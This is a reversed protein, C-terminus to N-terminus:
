NNEGEGFLDGIQDEAEEFDQPSITESEKVLKVMEYVSTSSNYSKIYYDPLQMSINAVKVVEETEINAIDNNMDTISAYEKMVSGAYTGTIGLITEGLKIKDATLGIVDAIQSQPAIIELSTGDEVIKRVGYLDNIDAGVVMSPINGMNMLTLHTDTNNSNDVSIADTTELTGTIKQGNVYAIKDLALDGEIANADSTYTGNIGIISSGQKIKDSTIGLGNAFYSVDIYETDGYETQRWVGERPKLDILGVKNTNSFYKVQFRDGLYINNSSGGQSNFEFLGGRILATSSYALKSAPFDSTTITSNSLFKGNLEEVYDLADTSNDERTLLINLNTTDLDIFDLVNDIGWDDMLYEQVTVKVAWNINTHEFIPHTISVLTYDENVYWGSLQLLQEETLNYLELFAGVLSEYMGLSTAVQIFVQTYDPSFYYTSPNTFNMLAPNTDIVQLVHNKPISLQTDMNVFRIQYSNLNAFEGTQVGQVYYNILDTQDDLLEIKKYVQVGLPKTPETSISSIKDAYERFTTNDDIPQGKTIIQEKILNKTEKLYELQTNLEEINM